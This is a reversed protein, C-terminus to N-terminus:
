AVRRHADRPTTTKNLLRFENKLGRTILVQGQDTVFVADMNQAALLPMSEEPGLILTATALADLAAGNEGVLTVSVLGSKSPFGTRPDVVHHYRLGNIHVFREYVGSTVVCRDELMLTGMPAGDAAFPNRIGVPLRCGMTAVTGGLDLLARRVGRVRLRQRLGDMAFGKAIGGLDIRQGPRRLLVTQADDDLEMERWNVLEMAQWVTEDAPLRKEGMAKRWLDALPGVTVDFAGETTQGYEKALRLVEFTDKDVAVPSQGSARNIRSILSDARFCSWARNLDMMYARADSAAEPGEADFLTITHVTGMAPFSKELTM